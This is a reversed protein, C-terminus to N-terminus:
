HKRYVEYIKRTLSTVALGDFRVRRYGPRNPLKGAYVRVEVRHHTISHRCTGIATLTKEPLSSFSPFEWLGKKEQMLVGRPSSDIVAHLDIRVTKPRKRAAPIEEQRGTEFAACTTHWPCLLCQPANPTCLTAGLEMIGQNVVRPQGSQVLERAAGWVLADTTQEWGYFRSLVRRVNGDVIPYPQNFAISMIAGATYRGIGPLGLLAEYSPPVCGGHEVVLRNAAAKLNRARSYYGLGSWLQLVQDETARALEEITSFRSLFREYYPIVTDVQTQQLMIESVWVHYPHYTKRWPLPRHAAEFWAELPRTDPQLSIPSRPLSNKRV